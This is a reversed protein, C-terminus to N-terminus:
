TELTTIESTIVSQPHNADEEMVSSQFKQRKRVMTKVMKNFEEDSCALMYRLKVNIQNEM